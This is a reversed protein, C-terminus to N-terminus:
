YKLAYLACVYFKGGFNICSFESEIKASLNSHQISFSVRFLRHVLTMSICGLIDSKMRTVIKIQFIIGLATGLHNPSFESRTLEISVGFKFVGKFFITSVTFSCNKPYIRM